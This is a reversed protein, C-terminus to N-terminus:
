ETAFPATSFDQFVDLRSRVALLRPIQFLRPLNAPHQQGITELADLFQRVHLDHDLISSILKDILDRSGTGVFEVSEHFMMKFPEVPTAGYGAM